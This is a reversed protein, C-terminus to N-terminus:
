ISDLVETVEGSAWDASDGECCTMEVAADMGYVYCRFWDRSDGANERWLGVCALDVEVRYRV